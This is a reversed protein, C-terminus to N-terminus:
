PMAGKGCFNGSFMLSFLLRDNFIGGNTLRRLFVRFDSANYYRAVSFHVSLNYTEPWFSSATLAQMNVLNESKLVSSHIM